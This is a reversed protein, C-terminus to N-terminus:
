SSYKLFTHKFKNKIESSKIMTDIKLVIFYSSSIRSLAMLEISPFPPRQYENYM